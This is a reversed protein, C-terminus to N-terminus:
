FSQFDKSAVWGPKKKLNKNNNNNNITKNNM